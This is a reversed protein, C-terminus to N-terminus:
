FNRVIFNLDMKLEKFNLFDFNDFEDLPPYFYGEFFRGVHVRGNYTVLIGFM